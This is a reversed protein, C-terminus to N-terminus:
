TLPEVGLEERAERRVEVMEDLSDAIQVWGARRALARAPELVERTAAEHAATDWWVSAALANFAAAFEGRAELSGAVDLRATGDYKRTSAIAEVAPWLPDMTWAAEPRKCLTRAAVKLLSAANAPKLGPSIGFPQWDTDLGPLQGMLRWRLPDADKAKMAVAFATLADNWCGAEPVPAATRAPIAGTM